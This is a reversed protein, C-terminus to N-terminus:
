CAARRYNRSVIVYLSLIVEWWLDLRYHRCKGTIAGGVVAMAITMGLAAAQMGAQRSASWGEGTDVDGYRGPNDEIDSM